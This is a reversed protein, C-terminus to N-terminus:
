GGPLVGGQLATRVLALALALLCAGQSLAWRGPRNYPIFGVGRVFGTSMAWFLLLALLHDVRSRADVVLDPRLTLGILLALGVGLSPLSIGPPRPSDTSM